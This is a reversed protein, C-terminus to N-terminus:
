KDVTKNKIMETLQQNFEEVKIAFERGQSASIWESRFRQPEIGMVPLLKRLVAFRRRAYYNGTSYHCDGMHCGSVFVGDAGGTLAKVIFLPNVRASCPVRVIRVNSPYTVRLSGTYDAGAYSCWNCLFGIIKPTLDWNTGQTHKQIDQIAINEVKKIEEPTKSM